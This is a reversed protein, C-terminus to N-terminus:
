VTPVDVRGQAVWNDLVGYSVNGGRVIADRQEAVLLDEQYTEWASLFPAPVENRGTEITVSVGNVTLVVAPGPNFVAARLSNKLAEQFQARKRQHQAHAQAQVERLTQQQEEKSLPPRERLKIAEAQAVKLAEVARAKQEAEDRLLEALRANEEEAAALKGAQLRMQAEIAEMRSLLSDLTPDAAKQKDATVASGKLAAVIDRTM